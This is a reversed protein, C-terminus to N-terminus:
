RNKAFPFRRELNDFIVFYSTSLHARIFPTRKNHELSEGKKEIPGEKRIFYSRGDSTVALPNNLLVVNELTGPLLEPMLGDMLQYISLRGDVNVSTIINNGHSGIQTTTEDSLAIPDLGEQLLYPKRQQDLILLGDNWVGLSVIKTARPHDWVIDASSGSSRIDIKQIRGYDDLLYEDDLDITNRNVIREGGREEVVVQSTIPFHNVLLYWYRWDVPFKPLIFKERLLRTKWFFDTDTTKKVRKSVTLLRYLLDVPLALLTHYLVIDDIM